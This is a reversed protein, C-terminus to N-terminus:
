CHWLDAAKSTIWMERYTANQQSFRYYFALTWENVVWTRCESVRFFVFPCVRLSSPRHLNHRCCASSLLMIVRTREIIGVWLPRFVIKADKPRVDSLVHFSSFFSSLLIFCLLAIPSNFGSREATATAFAFYKFTTSRKEGDKAMIPPRKGYARRSYRTKAPREGTKWRCFSTKRPRFVDKTQREGVTADKSWNFPGNYCAACM